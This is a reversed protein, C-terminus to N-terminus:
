RMRKPKEYTLSTEPFRDMLEKFDLVHWPEGNLEFRSPDVYRITKRWVEENGVTAILMSGDPVKLHRRGGIPLEIYRKPVWVKGCRECECYPECRRIFHGEMVVSRPYIPAYGCMPCMFSDYVSVEM